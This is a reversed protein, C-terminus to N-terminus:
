KLSRDAVIFLDGRPNVAYWKDKLGAIRHAVLRVPLVRRVREVWWELDERIIHTTEAEYDGILYRGGRALPVCLLWVPCISAMYELVDDIDQYAVHELVDKVFGYDYFQKNATPHFLRGAVAPDCYERAYDSIELGYADYGAELVARVFFGKGCGFDVVRAGAPVGLTRVFASAEVRSREPQWSYNDYWSYGDSRGDEYYHENFRAAYRTIWTTAM